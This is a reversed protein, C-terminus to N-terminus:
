LQQMRTLKTKEMRLIFDNQEDETMKLGEIFNSHLTPHQKKLRIFYLKKNKFFRFAWSIVKVAKRQKEVIDIVNKEDDSLDFLSTSVVVVFSILIAGWLSAFMIITRGMVTKPTIDGYGVTSITIVVLYISVFVPDQNLVNPDEMFDQYEFILIM